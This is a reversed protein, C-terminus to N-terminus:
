PNTCPRSDANRYFDFLTDCPTCDALCAGLQWAGVFDQDPSTSGGLVAMAGCSSSNICRALCRDIPRCEVEILVRMARANMQSLQYSDICARIHARAEECEGGTAMGGCASTLAFPGASRLVCALRLLVVRRM